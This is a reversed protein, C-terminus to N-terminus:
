ARLWAFLTQKRHLWGCDRGAANYMNMRHLIKTNDLHFLCSDHGWSSRKCQDTSTSFLKDNKPFINPGPTCRFWTLFRGDQVFQSLQIYWPTDSSWVQHLKVIYELHFTATYNMVCQMLDVFWTDRQFMVSISNNQRSPMTIKCALLFGGNGQHHLHHLNPWFNVVMDPQHAPPYNEVHQVLSAQHCSWRPLQQVAGNSTRVNENCYLAHHRPPQVTRYCPTCRHCSHSSTVLTISEMTVFPLRLRQLIGQILTVFLADCMKSEKAEWGSTRKRTLLHALAPSTFQWVIIRRM